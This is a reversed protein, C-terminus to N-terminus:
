AFLQMGIGGNGIGEDEGGAIRVFVANTGVGAGREPEGNEGVVCGLSWVCIEGGGMGLCLGEGYGAEEGFGVSRATFKAEIFFGPFVM